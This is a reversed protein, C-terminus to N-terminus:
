AQPTPTATAKKHPQVILLHGLQDPNKQFRKVLQSVQKQTLQGATVAPQLGNQLSTAILTTFQPGTVKQDTAIQTLTKGSSLQTNLQDSTLKLGSALQQEVNPTYQRIYQTVEKKNPMPTASTNSAIITTPTPAPGATGIITPMLWFVGLGVVVVIVVLAVAGVIITLRRNM